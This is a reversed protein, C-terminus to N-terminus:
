KIRMDRAVLEFPELQYGTVLHSQTVKISPYCPADDHWRDLEISIKLEIHRSSISVLKISLGLSWPQRILM